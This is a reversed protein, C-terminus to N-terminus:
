LLAEFKELIGLRVKLVRKIFDPSHNIISMKLNGKSRGRLHTSELLARDIRFHKKRIYTQRLGNGNILDRLWSKGKM